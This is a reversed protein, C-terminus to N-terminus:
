VQQCRDAAFRFEHSERPLTDLALSYYEAAKNGDRNHDAIYAKAFYDLCPLYADAPVSATLIDVGRALDKQLWWGCLSDLRHRKSEPLKWDGRDVRDFVADVLTDERLWVLAELGQILYAPQIPVPERYDILFRYLERVRFFDRADLASYLLFNVRCTLRWTTRQLQKTSEYLYDWFGTRQRFRLLYRIYQVVINLGCQFVRM